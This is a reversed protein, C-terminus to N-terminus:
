VLIFSFSVYYELLLRSKRNYSLYNLILLDRELFFFHLFHFTVFTSKEIRCRFNLRSIFRLQKVFQFILTKNSSLINEKVVTFIESNLIYNLFIIFSTSNQVHKTYLSSLIQM